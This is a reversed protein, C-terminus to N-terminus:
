SASSSSSHTGGGRPTPRCLAYPSLEFGARAYASVAGPSSHVTVRELGLQGTRRSVAALIQAGVGSNREAPVIYVSQLDGSARGGPSQPHPVRPVTALCAMGIVADGRTAIIWQHSAAHERSWAAFADIFEERPM